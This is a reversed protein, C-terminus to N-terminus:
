GCIEFWSSVGMATVFEMMWYSVATPPWTSRIANAPAPKAGARLASYGHRPLTQSFFPPAEM